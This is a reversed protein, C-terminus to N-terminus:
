WAAGEPSAAAAYGNPCDAQRSSSASPMAFSTASTATDREAIRRIARYTEDDVRLAVRNSHGSRGSLSPRGAQRRILTPPDFGAAAEEALRAELAISLEVGARTVPPDDGAPRVTAM